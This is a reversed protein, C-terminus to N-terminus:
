NESDKEIISLIRCFLFIILYIYKNYRKYFFNFYVSSSKKDISIEYSFFTSYMENTFLMLFYLNCM